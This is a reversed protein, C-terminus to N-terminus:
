AKRPAGFAGYAAAVDRESAFKGAKAQRLGEKIREEEWRRRALYEGVAENVLFSRDRDLRAGLEDLAARKDRDIRVSVTEKTKEPM